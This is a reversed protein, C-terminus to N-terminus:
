YKQKARIRVPHRELQFGESRGSNRKVWREFESETLSPIDGDAAVMPPPFRETDFAAIVTGMLDVDGANDAAFGYSYPALRAVSTGVLGAEQFEDERSFLAYRQQGKVPISWATPDSTLVYVQGAEAYFLLVYGDVPSSFGCRIRDGDMLSEVSARAAVDSVLDWDLTVRTQKIERAKGRVRVKWCIGGDCIVPEPGIVELTQMWEGQVESVNLETFAEDVEGNVDSISLVSESQVRTGFANALARIRAQEVAWQKAELETLGSPNSLTLEGSDVTRVQAMGSAAGCGWLLIFAKWLVFRLNPKLAFVVLLDPRELYWLGQFARM